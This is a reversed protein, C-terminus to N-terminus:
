RLRARGAGSGDRGTTLRPRHREPQLLGRGGDRGLRRHCAPEHLDGDVRGARPARRIGVQHRRLEGVQHHALRDQDLEPPTLRQRHDQALCRCRGADRWPRDDVPNSGITRQQGREPQREGPLDGRMVQRRRREDDPRHQRGPEQFPQFQHRLQRRCRAAGVLGTEGPEIRHVGIQKRLELTARSRHAVEGAGVATGARQTADPRERRAAGDGEFPRQQTRAGPRAVLAPHVERLGTM